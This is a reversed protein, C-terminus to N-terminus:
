RLYFGWDTYDGLFVKLNCFCSGKRLMDGIKNSMSTGCMSAEQEDMSALSSNYAKIFPFQKNKRSTSVKM